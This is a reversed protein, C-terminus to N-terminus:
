SVRLMKWVASKCDRPEVYGVMYGYEGELILRAAEAGLRSAFYETTLILAEVEKHIDPFLLESKWVPRRQYDTDAMEYSVSKSVQYEEMSKKYEKKSLAAEEKSIAGEAM